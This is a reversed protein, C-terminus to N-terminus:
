KESIIKKKLNFFHDTNELDLKKEFMFHNTNKNFVYKIKVLDFFQKTNENFISIIKEFMFNIYIKM